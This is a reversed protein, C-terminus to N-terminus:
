LLKRRSPLARYLWMRGMRVGPVLLSGRANGDEERIIQEKRLERCNKDKRHHKM